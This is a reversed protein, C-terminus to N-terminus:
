PYTTLQQIAARSTPTLLEMSREQKAETAENGPMIPPKVAWTLLPSMMLM